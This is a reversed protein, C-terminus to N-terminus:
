GPAPLVPEEIQGESILVASGTVRVATVTGAKKDVEIELRSPRGMEIGQAIVRKITGNQMPDHHGLWGALAAAASGTAPDEPIGSLPAYMRAQFDFGDPADETFILPEKAFLEDGIRELVSLDIRSRALASRDKVQVVLFPNGTSAGEARLIDDPELSLMAAMVDASPAPAIKPQQPATLTASVARGDVSEITVPVPGADTELVIDTRDDDLSVEGMSALILATGITPHGAFPIERTPVFIRMRRTNAPNEPRLVFVTESLNFERALKQMQETSLGEANPLVALPNGGFPQDTFVDATIFHRRM